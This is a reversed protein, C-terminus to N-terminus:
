NDIILQINFGIDSAIDNGFDDVMHITVVADYTGAPVSKELIIEKLQTGVRILGSTYIIEGTDSRALDFWFPYHNGESNGMIANDSASKGNPFHWSMNMWTAFMGDDVKAQIEADIEDVNAETIVRSGGTDAPPAPAPRTLLVVTVVAAAVILVAGLILVIHKTQLGSKPPPAQAQPTPTENQM